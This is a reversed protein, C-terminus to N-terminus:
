VLGPDAQPQPRAERRGWRGERIEGVWGVGVRGLSPKWGRVVEGGRGVAEYRYRREWKVGGGRVVLFWWECRGWWGWGKFLLHKVYEYFYLKTKCRISILLLWVQEKVALSLYIHESANLQFNSLSVPIVWWSKSQINRKWQIFSISGNLSSHLSTVIPSAMKFLLSSPFRSHRHKIWMRIIAM